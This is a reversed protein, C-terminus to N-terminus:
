ESVSEEAAAKEEAELDNILNAVEVFVANMASAGAATVKYKGKSAIEALAIVVESRKM